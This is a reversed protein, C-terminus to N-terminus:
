KWTPGDYDVPPEIADWKLEAERCSDRVNDRFQESVSSAKILQGDFIDMSMCLRPLPDVNGKGELAWLILQTVWRRRNEINKRSEATRGFFLVIGGRHSSGSETTETLSVDLRVNIRVGNVKLPVDVKKLGMDYKHWRKSKFLDIFAEIARLDMRADARKAENTEITQNLKSIPLDFYAIDKKGSSLFNQIEQRAFRYATIPKSRPFKAEQIM